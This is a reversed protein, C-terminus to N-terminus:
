KVKHKRKSINWIKLYIFYNYSDCYIIYSIRLRKVDMYIYIYKYILMYVFFTSTSLSFSTFMCLHPHQYFPISMECIATWLGYVYLKQCGKVIYISTQPRYSTFLYKKDVKVVRVMWVSKEEGSLHLNSFLNLSQDLLIILDWLDFCNLVSIFSALCLFIFSALCAFM